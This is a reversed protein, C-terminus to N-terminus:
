AQRRKKEWKVMLQILKKDRMRGEVREGDLFLLFTDMAQESELLSVNKIQRLRKKIAETDYGLRYFFLARAFQVEDKHKQWQTKGKLRELLRERYKLFSNEDRGLESYLHLGAKIEMEYAYLSQKVELNAFEPFYSRMVAEEIMEEVSSDFRTM